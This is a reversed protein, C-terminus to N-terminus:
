RSSRTTRAERPVVRALTDAMWAEYQENDWGSEDVLLVYVEPSTLAWLGDRETTTPPRGMILEAAAAVDRRQNERARELVAALERDSPAAERIVKALAATRRYIDALLRAAAATRQAHRGRGIVAFEPRQAVALPRDDGAVAVDVVAQLLARKSSFHSYLTELAVGAETAVDRMGTAFWGRSVFLRRAADLLATRTQAAREARVRSRYPRRVTATV